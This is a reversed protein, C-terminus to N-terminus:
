SQIDLFSVLPVTGKTIPDPVCSCCKGTVPMGGKGQYRNGSYIGCCECRWRATKSAQVFNFKLHCIQFHLGHTIVSVCCTSPFFLFLHKVYGGDDEEDEDNHQFIFSLFHGHRIFNCEM